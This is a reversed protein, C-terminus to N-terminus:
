RALASIKKLLEVFLSCPSKQRMHTLYDIPLATYQISISYIAINYVTYRIKNGQVIATCHVIHRHISYKQEQLENYICTYIHVAHGAGLNSTAVLILLNCINM